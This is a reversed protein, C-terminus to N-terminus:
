NESKYFEKLCANSIRQSITCCKECCPVDAWCDRVKSDNIILRHQTLELCGVCSEPERKEDHDKKTM